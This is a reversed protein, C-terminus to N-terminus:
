YPADPKEWPLITRGLTMPQATVIEDIPLLNPKYYYYDSEYCLDSYPNAEVRNLITISFITIPYRRSM